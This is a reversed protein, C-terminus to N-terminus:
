LSLFRTYNRKDILQEKIKNLINVKIVSYKKKVNKTGWTIHAETLDLCSKLYRLNENVMPLLETYLEKTKNISNKEEQIKIVEKERRTIKARLIIGEHSSMIGKSIAIAIQKRTPFTQTNTM